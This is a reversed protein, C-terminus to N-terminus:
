SALEDWAKALSARVSDPEDRSALSGSLPKGRQSAAATRAQNAEEVAKARRREMETNLFAERAEPVLMVAQEYADALTMAMKNAMLQAMHGRVLEFHPRDGSALFQKIDADASQRYMDQQAATLGGLQDRLQGIEQMLPQLAPNPPEVSGVKGLDVGYARAIEAVEAAKQEPSGTALISISKLASALTAGEDANFQRMLPRYPEFVSRITSAYKADEGYKGAAKAADATLRTVEAKWEPPLTSWGAKATATLAAPPADVISAAEAVPAAGSDAAVIKEGADADAVPQKAEAADASKTGEDWAAELSSRVSDDAPAEVEENVVVEEAM